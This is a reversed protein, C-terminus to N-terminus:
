YRVGKEEEGQKLGAPVPLGKFNYCRFITFERVPGQNGRLMPAPAPRGYRHIYLTPERECRDFAEEVKKDMQADGWKVYIGDKGKFPVSKLDTGLGPWLDYQNVRRGININYTIPNGPVYFALESTVQYTDSFI